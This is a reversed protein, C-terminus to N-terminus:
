RKRFTCDLCPIGGSKDKKYLKAAAKDVLKLTLIGGGWEAITTVTNTELELDFYPAKDYGFMSVIAPAKHRM